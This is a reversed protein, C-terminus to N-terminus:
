RSAERDRAREICNRLVQRTRSLANSVVNPSTGVRQAIAAPKLDQTYRLEILSRAKDSLKEICDHLARGNASLVDAEDIYANALHEVADGTLVMRGRGRDRRYDLVKYKAIGIAWAVFPRSDDYQEFNTAIDYATQQLVDEADAPNPVMSRVFAMVSPQAQTWLLTLRTRSENSEPRQ